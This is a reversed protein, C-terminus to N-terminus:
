CNNESVHETIYFFHARHGFGNEHWKKKVRRWTIAFRYSKRKKKPVCFLLKKIILTWPISFFKPGWQSEDNHPILIDEQTNWLMFFTNIAHLFKKNFHFSNFISSFLQCVRQCQNNVFCKLIFYYFIYKFFDNWTSTPCICDM